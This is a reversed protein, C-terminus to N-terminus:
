GKEQIAVCTAYDKMKIPYLYWENKEKGREIIKENRVSFFDMGRNLGIGLAKLYAEKAAWYQYFLKLGGNQMIDAAEEKSFFNEAIEMYDPIEKIEQVDIGVKYSYSFAALVKEGSHSINFEVTKQNAVKEHYPKGYKGNKLIIKDTGLYHGLLFRTLIKGSIFRMKDEYLRYRRAQVIEKGNLIDRHRNWFDGMERWQINWIHVIDEQLDAMDEALLERNRYVEIKM